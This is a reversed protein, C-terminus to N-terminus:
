VALQWQKIFDFQHILNLVNLTLNDHILYGVILEMLLALVVISWVPWRWAIIYGFIMSLSDCVSNIASDGVYGLSLAQQRYLNIVYPTNEAIEWSVELGLALLLRQLVTLKPFLYRFLAYFLFGHVIHSFTYWDTLHQSNGSSKVVGEWFKIYECTCILPQGFHILVGAQAALIGGVAILTNRTTLSSM